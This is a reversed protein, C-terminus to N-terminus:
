VLGKEKVFQVLTPGGPKLCWYAPGQLSKKQLIEEAARSMSTKKGEYLISTTGIVKCTISSNEKFYLITTGPSVFGKDILITM